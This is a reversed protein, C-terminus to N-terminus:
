PEEPPKRRDAWGRRERPSGAAQQETRTPSATAEEADIGPEPREMLGLVTARSLGFVMYFLGLPFLFYEPRFLGGILIV